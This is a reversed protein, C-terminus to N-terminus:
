RPPLEVSNYLADVFKRAAVFENASMTEINGRLADVLQRADERIRAATGTSRGTTARLAFVQELDNRLDAYEPELLPEPWNIRGSVPDVDSSSLPPPLEAAAAMALTERSHKNREFKQRQYSDNAERMQFYAQTWRNINDIYKSRAEEYNIMGQSTMANYEGEARIVQAMGMFYNGAATGGGYFGYGGGFWPVATTVVPMGAQAHLQAPASVAVTIGACVILLWHYRTM